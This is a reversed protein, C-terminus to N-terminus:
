HRAVTRGAIGAEDGIITGIQRLDAIAGRGLLAGPAAGVLCHLCHGCRKNAAVRVAAAERTRDLRGIGFRGSSRCDALEANPSPHVRLLVVSWTRVLTRHRPCEIGRPSSWIM